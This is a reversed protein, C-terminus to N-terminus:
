VLPLRCAASTKIVTASQTLLTQGPLPPGLGPATHASSTKFKCKPSSQRCTIMLAKRCAQRCQFQPLDKARRMCKSSCRRCRSCRCRLYTIQLGPRRRRQHHTEQHHRRRRLYMHQFSITSVTGTWSTLQLFKCLCPALFSTLGHNYIALAQRLPQTSPLAWRLLGIIKKACSTTCSVAPPRPHITMVMTIAGCSSPRSTPAARSSTMSAM